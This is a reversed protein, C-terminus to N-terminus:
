PALKSRDGESGGSLAQLGFQLSVGPAHERKILFSRHQQTHYRPRCDVKYPEGPHGLGYGISRQVPRVWPECLIQPGCSLFSAM